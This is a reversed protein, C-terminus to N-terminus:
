RGATGSASSLASPTRVKVYQARRRAAALLSPAHVGLGDQGGGAHHDRRRGRDDGPPLPLGVVVLEAEGEELAPDPDVIRDHLQGGDDRLLAGHVHLLQTIVGSLGALGTEDEVVLDLVIAVLEVLLADGEHDGVLDDLRCRVRGAVLLHGFRLAIDQDPEALLKVDGLRVELGEQPDPLTGQDSKPLAPGAHGALLGLTLNLRDPSVGTGDPPVRVVMGRQVGGGWEANDPM